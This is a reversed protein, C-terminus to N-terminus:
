LTEEAMENLHEVPSCHRAWRTSIYGQYRRTLAAHSAEVFAAGYNLLIDLGSDLEAVIARCLQYQFGSLSFHKLLPCLM